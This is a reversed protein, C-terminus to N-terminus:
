DRHKLAVLLIAAGVGIPWYKSIFDNVPNPVSNPVSAVTNITPMVTPNVTPAIPITQLNKQEDIQAQTLQNTGTGGTTLLANKQNDYVYDVWIKPKGPAIADPWIIQDAPNKSDRNRLEVTTQDVTQGNDYTYDTVYVTVPYGQWASLESFQHIIDVKSSNESSHDATDRFLMNKIKLLNGSRNDIIVCSPTDFVIVCNAPVTKMFVALDSPNQLVCSPINMAKLTAIVSDAQYSM